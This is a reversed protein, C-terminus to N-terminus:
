DFGCVKAGRVSAPKEACRKHWAVVNPFDADLKLYERAGYGWDVCGVWPFTCIDAITYEEGVLYSQGDLQTELVGLLRRVENTYRETPYPLREKAFKYFHGLQGFMPGVGAMQFFLWQLCESRKRADTPILKGTKEALHLPIAGSEFIALPKGDPGEPDVIAPIKSNPCAAKFEDTFQDNEMINVKHPEYPLSLEELAISVKQGNPTALSYLQIRDPHEIPWKREESM